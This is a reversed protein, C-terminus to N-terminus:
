KGRIQAYLDDVEGSIEKALLDLHKGSLGQKSRYSGGWSPPLSTGLMVPEAYPVNNHIHYKKRFNEKGLQYNLPKAPKVITGLGESGYKGKSAPAGMEANEGIQWSVALRGTDVPSGEKIIRDATLVVVSLLTNIQEESYDGIEELKIKRM